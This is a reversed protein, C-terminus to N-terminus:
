LLCGCSPAFVGVWVFTVYLSRVFCLFVEVGCLFDAICGYGCVELRFGGNFAEGGCIM